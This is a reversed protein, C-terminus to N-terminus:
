SFHLTLTVVRYLVYLLLLSMAFALLRLSTLIVERSLEVSVRYGLISKEYIVLSYARAVDEPVLAVEPIAILAIVASAVKAASVAMFALMYNEKALLGIPAAVLQAISGLVAALTSARVAGLWSKYRAFLFQGIFNAGTFSFSSYASLPVHLAPIPTAWALVPAAVDMGLSLRLVSFPKRGWFLSAFVSALTGLLNMAVALSDPAKLKNVVYPIWVIGLLNASAYQAVIFYSASFVKEPREAGAPKAEIGGPIDLLAVLMTSALGIAAGATIMYEYKEGGPLLAALGAAVTFGLITSANFAASRKATLDMVDEESLLGYIVLNILTGVPLSNIVGYLAAVVAYGRAVPVLFWTVRELGHFLVLKLKVRGTLLSPWRFLVISVLAAIVSSILAVASVEWAGFGRSVMFIVFLGRTLSLYVGALLAEMVLIWKLKLRGGSALAEGLAFRM